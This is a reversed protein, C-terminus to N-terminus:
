ALLSLKSGVVKDLPMMVDNIYKQNQNVVMIDAMLQPVKLTFGRQNVDVTKIDNRTYIEPGTLLNVSNFM